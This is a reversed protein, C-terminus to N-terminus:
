PSSRFFLGSIGSLFAAPVFVACLTLAIAILAGGVEDMTRHAAERPSMGARHQARRERGRRDRRRRRHRGGAGPRVAVPQEALHRPALIAFTGVLSVPIAIVPFSSARWTQLFLFVVGVVLLIAIFITTIVEHVSKAIFIPRTTSSTTPSAPPFDKAEADGHHFASRAGGGAFQRRAPRLDAAAHGTATWSLRHGYDQAGIEVRGVDRVRTVRGAPADSKLV